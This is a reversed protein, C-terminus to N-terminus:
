DHSGGFFQEVRALFQRALAVDRDPIMLHARAQEITWPTPEFTDTGKVVWSQCGCLLAEQQLVTYHDQTYFHTARRLLAMSRQRQFWLDPHGAIELLGPINPREPCNRKGVFLVASVTKPEPFLWEPHDINPLELIADDPIAVDSMARCGDMFDHRYVLPMEGPAVRYPPFYLLYRIIHSGGRPNGPVIEPYLIIDGPSCSAVVPLLPNYYCEYTVAINAGAAACLSALYNLVRIGGSCPHWGHNDIVLRKM